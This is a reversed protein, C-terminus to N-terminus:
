DRKVREVPMGRDVWERISGNLIIREKFPIEDRYVFVGDQPCTILNAKRARSCADKDYFRVVANDRTGDIVALTRKDARLMDLTLEPM